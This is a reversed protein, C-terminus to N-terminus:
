GNPSAQARSDSKKAPKDVIAVFRKKKPQNGPFFAPKRSAFFFNKLIQKVKNSEVVFM